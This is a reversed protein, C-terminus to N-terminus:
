TRIDLDAYTRNTSVWIDDDLDGYWWPDIRRKLNNYERETIVYARIHTKRKHKLFYVRNNGDLPWYRKATKVLLVPPIQRRRNERLSDQSDEDIEISSYRISKLPVMRLKARVIKM